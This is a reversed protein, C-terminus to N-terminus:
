LIGVSAAFYWGSIITSATSGNTDIATDARITLTNTGSYQASLSGVTDSVSASVYIKGVQLENPMAGNERLQAGKVTLTLTEGKEMTGKFRIGLQLFVVGAAVSYRFKSNDIAFTTLNEGGTRTVNVTVTRQDVKEELTAIDDGMSELSDIRTRQEDLAAEFDEKTTDDTIIYFCNQAINGQLANYQAQTGVWFTVYGGANMEKVKTIVGADPDIVPSGSAAQTIATLIQERTMTEHKCNADCFCYYTRESM